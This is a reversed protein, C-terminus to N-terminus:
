SPARPVAGKEAVLHGMGWLAVGWSGGGRPDLAGENLATDLQPHPGPWGSQVPYPFLRPAQGRCPSPLVLLPLPGLGSFSWCWLHVLVGRSCAGRLRTSCPRSPQASLPPGAPRLRPDEAAFLIFVSLSPSVGTLCSAPCCHLGLGVVRGRTSGETALTGLLLKGLGPMPIRATVREAVRPLDGVWGPSLNRMPCIHSDPMCPPSLFALRHRSQRTHTRLLSAFAM